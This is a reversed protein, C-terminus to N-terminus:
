TKASVIEASNDYCRLEHEIEMSLRGLTFEDDSELEYVITGEHDIDKIEGYGTLIQALQALHSSKVLMIRRAPIQKRGQDKM